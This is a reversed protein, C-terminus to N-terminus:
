AAPPDGPVLAEPLSRCVQLIGSLSFSSEAGPRHHWQLSVRPDARLPPNSKPSSWSRSPPRLCRPIGGTRSVNPIWEGAGPGRWAPNEEVSAGCDFRGDDLNATVEGTVASHFVESGGSIAACFDSAFQSLSDHVHPKIKASCPEVRSTKWWGVRPSAFVGNCLLFQFMGWGDLGNRPRLDSPLLEPIPKDLPFSRCRTDPSIPSRNGSTSAWIGTCLRGSIM